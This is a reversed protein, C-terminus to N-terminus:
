IVQNLGRVHAEEAKTELRQGHQTINVKKLVPIADRGALIRLM